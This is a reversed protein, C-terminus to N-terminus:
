FSLSFFFISIVPWPSSLTGCIEGLFIFAFSFLVFFMGTVFNGTFSFNHSTSMVLNGLGFLQYFSAPSTHASPGVWAYYRHRESDLRWDWFWLSAAAFLFDQWPFDLGYCGTKCVSPYFCNIQPPSLSLGKLCSNQICFLLLIFFVHALRQPQAWSFSIHNTPILSIEDTFHYAQMLYYDSKIRGARVEHNVQSFRSPLIHLGLPSM